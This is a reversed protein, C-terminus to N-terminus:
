PRHLWTGAWRCAADLNALAAVGPPEGLEFRDGRIALLTCSPPPMGQLDV